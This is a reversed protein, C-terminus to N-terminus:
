APRPLSRSLGRGGTHSPCYATSNLGSYRRQVLKCAIYVAHRRDRTISNRAALSLSRLPKSTRIGTPPVLGNVLYPSTGLPPSRSREVELSRQGEGLTVFPIPRRRVRYGARFAGTKGSGVCRPRRLVWGNRDSDGTVESLQDSQCNALSRVRARRDTQLRFRM